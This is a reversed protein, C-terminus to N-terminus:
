MHDTSSSQISTRRQRPRAISSGIQIGGDRPGHPDIRLAHPSSSVTPDCLSALSELVRVLRLVGPPAATCGPETCSTQVIIEHHGDDRPHFYGDWPTSGVLVKFWPGTRSADFFLSSTAVLATVVEPDALAEDIAVVGAEGCRPLAVSCSSTTNFAKDYLRHVLSTCPTVRQYRVADGVVLDASVCANSTFADQVSADAAPSSSADTCAAVLALGLLLAFPASREARVLIM